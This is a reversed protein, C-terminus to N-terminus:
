KTLKKILYEEKFGTKSICNWVEQYNELFYDISPIVLANGDLPPVSDNRNAIFAVFQWGNSVIAIQISRDSCYGKVQDIAKRVKKNDKYVTALPQILKTQGVPLKFYIGTKKAELVAVSRFLSLIYDTYKGAYSDECSINSTDWGLCKTLIRDIYKFRTNAENFQTIGESKIDAVIAELELRGQEYETM